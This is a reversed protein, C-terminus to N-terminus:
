SEIEKNNKKYEVSHQTVDIRISNDRVFGVDPFGVVIRPEHTTSNKEPSTVSADSTHARVV